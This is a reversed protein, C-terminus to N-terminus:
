HREEYTKTWQQFVDIAIERSLGFEEELVKPAGFMNMLGSERLIDLYIFFREVKEVGNEPAVESMM